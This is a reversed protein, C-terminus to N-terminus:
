LHLEIKENAFRMNILNLLFDANNNTCFFM